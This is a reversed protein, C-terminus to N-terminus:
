SKLKNQSLYITYRERVKPSFIEKERPITVVEYDACKKQKFTKRKYRLM